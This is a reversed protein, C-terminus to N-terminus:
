LQHEIWIIVFSKKSSTGDKNRVLQPGAHRPPKASMVFSEGDESLFIVEEDLVEKQLIKILEGITM